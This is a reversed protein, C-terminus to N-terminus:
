SEGRTSTKHIKVKIIKKDTAQLVQIRYDGVIVIQGQHPIRALKDLILGAVTEYDGEPLNIGHEDALHDIETDAQVLWTNPSVQEVEPIEEAEDYEDAIDGFIEELIDEMTVIGSTGGYADVVIAISRRHKQMERLLVDLDTNEPTFFPKHLLKSVLTDPTYERKLVDYIILIGKIDDLDKGFVPYRTFGEERAIEIAEAVTATEPIAVLDTRPVMVNRAMQETFDLADEIMDMQPEDAEDAETLSLLYSLDDKTLYNFDNGETIKLWKRLVSNLWSVGLVLPKFLFYVFRMFPYIVPVITDAHDRFISKPVVEGFVLVVAGIVLATYRADFGTIYRSAVYTSLTAMLINVVNNGLLTTGLLKDPQRLSALLRASTKDKRAKGELELLNISIIGNEFGSFLFSLGLLVLFVLSWLLIEPISLRDM